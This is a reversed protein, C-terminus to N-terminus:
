RAIALSRSAKTGVVAQQEPHLGSRARPRAVVQDITEPDPPRMKNFRDRSRQSDDKPHDGRDVGFLSGLDEDSLYDDLDDFLGALQAKLAVHDPYRGALRTAWEKILKRRDEHQSSRLKEIDVNSEVVGGGESSPPQDTTKSTPPMIAIRREFKPVGKRQEPQRDTLKEACRGAPGVMLRASGGGGVGEPASESGALLPLGRGYKEALIRKPMSLAGACSQDVSTPYDRIDLFHPRFVHDAHLIFDNRVIATPGVLDAIGIRLRKLRM